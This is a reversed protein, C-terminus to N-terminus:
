SRARSMSPAVSSEQEAKAVAMMSLMSRHDALDRGGAGLGELIQEKRGSAQAALPPQFGGPRRKETNVAVLGETKEVGGQAAAAAQGKRGPHVMEAAVAQGAQGGKIKGATEKGVLRRNRREDEGELEGALQGSQRAEARQGGTGGQKGMEGLRVQNQRHRQVRGTQALAAEVLGQEDGPGAKGM